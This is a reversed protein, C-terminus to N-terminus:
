CLFLLLSHHYGLFEWPALAFIQVAVHPALSPHITAICRDVLLPGLALIVLAITAGQDICHLAHIPVIHCM